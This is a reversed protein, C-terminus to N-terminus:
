SAPNSAALESLTTNSNSNHAPRAITWGQGNRNTAQRNLPQCLNSAVALKTVPGPLNSSIGSAAPTSGVTALLM